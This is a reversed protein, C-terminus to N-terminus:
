KIRKFESFLLFSIHLRDRVMADCNMAKKDNSIM